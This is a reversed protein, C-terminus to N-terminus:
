IWQNIYELIGVFGKLEFANVVNKDFKIKNEDSLKNYDNKLEQIKNAVEIVFKDYEYQEEQVSKM